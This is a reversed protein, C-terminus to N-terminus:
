ILTKLENLTHLDYLSVLKLSKFNKHFNEKLRVAMDAVDKDPTFVVKMKRAIGKNIEYFQNFTDDADPV